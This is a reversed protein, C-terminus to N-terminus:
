VSRPALDFYVALAEKLYDYKNSQLGLLWDINQKTCDKVTKNQKALYGVPISINGAEEKTLNPKDTTPEQIPNDNIVVEEEIPTTKPEAVKKSDVIKSSNNKDNKKDPQKKNAEKLQKRDFEDESYVQGQLGLAAILVRSTARVKAMTGPHSIAIDNKCNLHNAEGIEMFDRNDYKVSALVVYSFKDVSFDRCNEVFNFTPNPLGFQKALSMLTANRLVVKETDATLLYQSGNLTVNKGLVELTIETLTEKMSM